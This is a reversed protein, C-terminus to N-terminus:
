VNSVERVHESVGMEDPESWTRQRNIGLKWDVCDALPTGILDAAAALLFLVDAWENQDHPHQWLEYAERRLHEIVSKPTAHPFTERQWVNVEALVDDLRLVAPRAKIERVGVAYLESACHSCVDRGGVVYAVLNRMGPSVQQAANVEAHTARICHDALMLCEVETCHPQGAKAGNYGAGVQRKTLPNVIVCGISARPCTAMRAYDAAIGFWFSDRDPRTM